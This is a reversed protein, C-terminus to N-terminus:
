NNEGNGGAATTNRFAQIAEQLERYRVAAASDDDADFPVPSYALMLEAAGLLRKTKDLLELIAQPNAAAHLKMNADRQSPSQSCSNIEIGYKNVIGVHPDYKWPGPSTLKALRELEDINMGEGERFVSLTLRKGAAIRCGGTIM